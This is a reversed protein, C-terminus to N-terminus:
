TAYYLAARIFGVQISATYMEAVTSQMHLAVCGAYAPIERAVTIKSRRIFSLIPLNNSVLVEV